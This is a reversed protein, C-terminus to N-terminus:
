LTPFISELGLECEQRLKEVQLQKIVVVVYGM